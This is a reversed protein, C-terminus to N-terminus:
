DMQKSLKEYFFEKFYNNDKWEYIFSLEITDNNKRDSFRIQFNKPIFYKYTTLKHTKPLPISSFFQAEVFDKTFVCSLKEYIKDLKPM